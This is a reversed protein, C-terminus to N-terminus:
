EGKYLPNPSIYVHVVHDLMGPPAVANLDSSVANVSGGIDFHWAFAQNGVAFRVVEGSKVNVYKTNPEIAVTREAANVSAPTGLLDPRYNYAMSPLVSTSLLLAAAGHLFFKRKM